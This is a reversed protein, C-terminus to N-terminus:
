PLDMIRFIGRVNFVIDDNDIYQYIYNKIPEINNVM